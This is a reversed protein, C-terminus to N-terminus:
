KPISLGPNKVKGSRLFKAIEEQSFTRQFPDGEIIFTRGPPLAKQVYLTRFQEPTYETLPKVGSPQQIDSFATTSRTPMEPVRATETPINRPTRIERVPELPNGMGVADESIAIIKRGAMSKPNFDALRGKLKEVDSFMTKVIRNPDNLFKIYRKMGHIAGAAAMNAPDLRALGLVFEGTSAIDALDFFGKVNKRADVTARQAVEKEISSLAGYRRKFDQYGPGSYTEIANDLSKRLNRSVRETMAAQHHGKFDPNRWFSKNAANFHAILDEAVEPAIAADYSKIEALIKKAADKISQPTNPMKGIQKLEDRIPALDVMAGKGGAEAAMGSYTAYIKRKTDAIANSFDELSKPLRDPMADVIERVAAKARDYYARVQGANAKGVVTPRIGKKIGSEIAVDMSREIAEPSKRLALAAVDGAIDAGEKAVKGAVQGGKGWPVLMAINATAEIDKAVEPYSKKFLGWAEVGERLANLGMQGIPTKTWYGVTERGIQKVSEPTIAELGAGLVDTIGGAVQGVTRLATRPWNSEPRSLEQMVNGARASVAGAAKNIFGPAPAPTVTAAVPKYDMWPGAEATAVPQYDEWPGGM